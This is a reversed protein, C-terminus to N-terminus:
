EIPRFEELERMGAERRFQNEAEQLALFAEAKVNDEATSYPMRGAEIGSIQWAM